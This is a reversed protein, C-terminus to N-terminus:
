RFFGIIGVGALICAIGLLKPATLKEKLMWWSYLAIWIYTTSVFPYLISLHNGRLSLIFIITSIGYCFLGVLLGISLRLKRFSIKNSERKLCVAGYAGIVCGFLVMLISTLTSSM